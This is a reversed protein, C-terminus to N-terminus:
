DLEELEENKSDQSKIERVVVEKERRDREQGIVIRKM